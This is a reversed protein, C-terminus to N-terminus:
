AKKLTLDHLRSFQLRDVEDAVFIRIQRGRRAGERLDSEDRRARGFLGRASEAVGLDKDDVAVFKGRRDRLRRAGRASQAPRCIIEAGSGARDNEHQLRHRLLEAADAGMPQEPRSLGQSLRNLIPSYFPQDIKAETALEGIGTGELVDCIHRDASIEAGVRTVIGEQTDGRWFTVHIFPYKAGAIMPRLAQNVILGTYLVVQGERRAGAILRADRDAGKYLLISGADGAGAAHARPALTATAAALLFVV